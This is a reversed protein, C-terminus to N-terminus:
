GLCRLSGAIFAEELGKKRVRLAQYCKKTIWGKRGEYNEGSGELIKLGHLSAEYEKIAKYIHFPVYFHIPEKEEM